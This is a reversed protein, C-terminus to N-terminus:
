VARRLWERTAERGGFRRLFDYAGGLKGTPLFGEKLQDM